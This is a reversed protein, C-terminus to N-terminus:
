TTGKSMICKQWRKKWDEFCKQYASKPIDKLERMSETKIEEITPFHRGNMPRKLGSFQFFDCPCRECIAYSKQEWWPDWWSMADEENLWSRATSRPLFWSSVWTRIHREWLIQSISM